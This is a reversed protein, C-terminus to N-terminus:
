DASLIEAIAKGCLIFCIRIKATSEFDRYIYGASHTGRAVSDTSNAVYGYTAGNDSVVRIAEDDFSNRPEKEITLIQGVHFAEIGMYYSAGAITIYNM